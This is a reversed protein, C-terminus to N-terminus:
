QSVIYLDGVWSSPLFLLQQKIKTFLLDDDLTWCTNTLNIFFGKEGAKAKQTTDPRLGLNWPLTRPEVSSHDWAETARKPLCPYM